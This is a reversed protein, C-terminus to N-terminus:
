EENEKSKFAPNPATKKHACFREQLLKKNSTKTAAEEEQKHHKKPGFANETEKRKLNWNSASLKLLMKKREKPIKNEKLLKAPIKNGKWIKDFQLM